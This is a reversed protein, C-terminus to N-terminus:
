QHQLILGQDPVWKDYEIMEAVEKAFERGRIKEVLHLAGDIGASVGATTIVKGNDVFRQHPLVKTTPVTSAFADTYYQHTTATLHDLVGAKGLIFAGTCVSMTYTASLSRARIWALLTSDKMSADTQGGFFVILDAPPANDISYNPRIPIIRQSQIVNSTRSVTFVKFGAATFVELPGAFDLVEVGDQLYLCVTVEKPPGAALRKLRVRWDNPSIKELTMGCIPCIGGKAFRITDCTNDCPPCAYIISDPHIAPQATGTLWSGLLILLLGTYKRM